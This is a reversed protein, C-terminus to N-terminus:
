DEPEPGALEQRSFWIAGALAAGVAVGALVLLSTATGAPGQAITDRLADAPTGGGNILISRVWYALTWTRFILGSGAVVGEWAVIFALGVLTARRTVVGLMAFASTYALSAVVTVGATLPWSAAGVGVVPMALSISVVGLLAAVLGAGILRTVVIAERRVPRTSLHVITGERLDDRLSGVGVILCILPVVLGVGVLFVIPALDSATAGEIGYRATAGLIAPVLALLGLGVARRGGFSERLGLELLASWRSLTSM